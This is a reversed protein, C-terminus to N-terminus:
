YGAQIAEFVGSSKLFFYIFFLNMAVASLFNLWMTFRYNANSESQLVKWFWFLFFVVVPSLFLVFDFGYKLAYFHDFYFVYALTALSFMIGTFIFTGKIGLLRSLTHDGRRGDEDHQYIQTMPYSGWLMLSSLLSAILVRPTLINEIQFDNIGLYAMLFTFSGQFFGAIFWSLFPYKKIRVSPHSYAKSVMGYIFLMLAFTLNITAGIAIAIFDFLLAYWYLQTSVPPPNELGGISDEDKDFYSNYANSAPYLFLHLAFFVLILNQTDMNPSIAMSFLFVPLLFFSFPIRLHLLTAKKIM